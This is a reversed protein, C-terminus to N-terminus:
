RSTVSTLIVIWLFFPIASSTGGYLLTITSFTDYQIEDSELIEAEIDDAGIGTSIQKDLDLLITKKWGLQEILNAIKPMDDTKKCREMIEGATSLLKTLHLRYGHHSIKLCKIDMITQSGAHQLM